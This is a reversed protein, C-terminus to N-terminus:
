HTVAYLVPKTELGAKGDSTLGNATQFNKVATQTASGFIGDIAGVPFGASTLDTQLNSVYTGTM